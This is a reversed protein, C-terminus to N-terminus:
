DKGAYEGYHLQRMEEALIGAKALDNFKFRGFCKSKKEIQLVVLWREDKTSWFVNRYGSKNNKNKGKRNKTNQDNDAIRLNEKRNDLPNNNKHDVIIRNAKDRTSANMIFSHMFITTSKDEINNKSVYVSAIIYYTDDTHCPWSHWTKNYEILRSLDETDILCIKPEENRHNCYIETTDGKIIYKNKFM